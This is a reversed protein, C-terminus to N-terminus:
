GISVVELEFKKWQHHMHVVHGLEVNNTSSYGGLLLDKQDLKWVMDQFFFCESGKAKSGPQLKPVRLVEMCHNSVHWDVALLQKGSLAPVQLLKSEGNKPHATVIPGDPKGFELTSKMGPACFDIASIAAHKHIEHSITLFRSNEHTPGLLYMFRGLLFSVVWFTRLFDHSITLLRSYDHAHNNLM